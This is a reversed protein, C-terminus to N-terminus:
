NQVYSVTVNVTGGTTTVCLSQGAPVALSSGAAWVGTPSNAGVNFVGSLNTLGSACANALTSTSVQATTTATASFVIGCVSITKPQVIVVTNPAAAPPSPQFVAPVGAVLTSTTSAVTAQAWQNCTIPVGGTGQSFAPGAWFLLVLLYAPLFRKM